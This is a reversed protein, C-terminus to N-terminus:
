DGSRGSFINELIPITEERLKQMKSEIFTSMDAYGFDPVSYNFLGTKYNFVVYGLILSEIQEGDYLICQIDFHYVDGIKQRFIPMIYKTVSRGGRKVM